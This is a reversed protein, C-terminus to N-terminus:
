SWLEYVGCCLQYGISASLGWSKIVWFEVYTNKPDGKEPEWKSREGLHTEMKIEKIGVQNWAILRMWLLLERFPDRVNTDNSHSLTSQEKGIFQTRKTHLSISFFFGAVEKAILQWRHYVMSFGKIKASQFLWSDVIAIREKSKTKRSIIQM